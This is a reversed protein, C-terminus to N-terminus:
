LIKSIEQFIKFFTFFSLFGGANKERAPPQKKNM